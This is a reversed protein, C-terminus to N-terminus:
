FYFFYKLILKVLELYLFSFLMILLLGDKILYNNGNLLGEVV